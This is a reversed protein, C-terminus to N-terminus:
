LACDSNSCPDFNDTSDLTGVRLEKPEGSDEAPAPTDDQAAADAPADQKTETPVSNTKAGSDATGASGSSGGCAALSLLMALALLMSLMRKM